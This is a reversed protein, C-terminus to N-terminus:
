DIIESIYQELQKVNEQKKKELDILEAYERSINIGESEDNRM